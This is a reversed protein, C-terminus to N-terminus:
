KAKIDLHRGDSAYRFVYRKPQTRNVKPGYGAYGVAHFDMEYERKQYVTDGGIRDFRVYPIPAKGNRSEGIPYSHTDTMGSRLKASKWANSTGWRYQYNITVNTANEISYAGRYSPCDACSSALQEAPAASATLALALSTAAILQTTRRM